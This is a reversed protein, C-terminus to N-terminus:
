EQLYTQVRGNIIGATEKPTRNNAYMISLEEVIIAKITKYQKPVPECNELFAAAEDFLALFKEESYKSTDYINMYVKNGMYDTKM